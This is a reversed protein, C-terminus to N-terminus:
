PIDAKECTFFPIESTEYVWKDYPRDGAPSVDWTFDSTLSLINEIIKWKLFWKHFESYKWHTKVYSFISNLICINKNAKLNM